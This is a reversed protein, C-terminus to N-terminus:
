GDLGQLYNLAPAGGGDVKDVDKQLSPSVETCSEQKWQVEIFNQFVVLFWSPTRQFTHQNGEKDKENM